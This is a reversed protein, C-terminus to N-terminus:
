PKGREQEATMGDNLKPVIRLNPGEEAEAEAEDREAQDWHEEDLVQTFEVDTVMVSGTYSDAVPFKVTDSGWGDGWDPEPLQYNDGLDEEGCPHNEYKVTVLYTVELNCRHDAM